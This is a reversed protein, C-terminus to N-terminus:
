GTATAVGTAGAAPALRDLGVSTLVESVLRDMSSLDTM